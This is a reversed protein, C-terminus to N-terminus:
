RDLVKSPLRRLRQYSQLNQQHRRHLLPQHPPRPHSPQLTGDAGFYSTQHRRAFRLLIQGKSGTM